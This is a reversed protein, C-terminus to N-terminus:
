ESDMRLRAVQSADTSEHLMELVTRKTVPHRVQAALERLPILVFRRDALREHPITLVSSRVVVNEYLLIDIDIPRPGKPIGPHRGLAREVSQLTKLLQLPMLETAVEAVCNVFWRQARFDVPETKYYSSVRLVELRAASLLTLAKRINGVRDGVNSGLSLFVRKSGGSAPLAATSNAQATHM